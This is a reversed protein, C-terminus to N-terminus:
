GGGLALWALMAGVVLALLVSVLLLRPAVQGPAPAPAQVTVDVTPEPPDQPRRAVATIDTHGGGPDLFGTGTLPLGEPAPLPDLPEDALLAKVARSPRGEAARFRDPDADRAIGAALHALVATLAGRGDEIRPVSGTPEESSLSRGAWTDLLGREHEDPGLDFGVEDVSGLADLQLELTPGEERQEDDTLQGPWTQERGRLAIALAGLDLLDSTHGPEGLEPVWRDLLTRLARLDEDIEGEGLAGLLHGSGEPGVVVSSADLGGHAFGLAHLAALADVLDSFASAVPGAGPDLDALLRGAPLEEAWVQEGDLRGVGVLLALAPHFPREVPGAGPWLVLKRADGRLAVVRVAGGTRPPLTRVLRAAFADPV